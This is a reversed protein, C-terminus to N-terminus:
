KYNIFGILKGKLSNWNKSPEKLIFVRILNVLIFFLFRIAYYYYHDKLHKRHFAGFGLAYNYIRNISENINTVPHYVIIDPYFCINFGSNLFGILYDTEESSGFTAGVGLKTDFDHYYSLPTKIFITFSIATQFINTHSVIVPNVPSKLYPIRTIKDITAGTIIDLEKNISFKSFVNNLLNPPYECDDDPFAIIDGSVLSLGLNRNVSLGLVVSKVHNITFFNSYYNIIDDILGNKNQDVIIVEFNKYEQYLLSSLFVEVEKERNLTAM